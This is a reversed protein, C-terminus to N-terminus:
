EEGSYLRRRLVTDRVSLEHTSPDFEQKFVTGIWRRARDQTRFGMVRHIGAGEVDGKPLIWAASERDWVPNHEETIEVYVHRGHGGFRSVRVEVRRPRTAHEPFYRIHPRPIEEIWKM